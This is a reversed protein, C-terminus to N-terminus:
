INFKLGQIKFLDLFYRKRREEVLKSFINVIKEKKKEMFIILLYQSIKSNTSILPAYNSCSFSYLVLHFYYKLMIIIM